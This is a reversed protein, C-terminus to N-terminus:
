LKSQLKQILWRHNGQLKLDLIVDYPNDEFEELIIRLFETSYRKKYWTM